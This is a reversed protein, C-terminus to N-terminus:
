SPVLDKEFVFIAERAGHEASLEDLLDRDYREVQFVLSRGHEDERVEVPALSSAAPQEQDAGVRLLVHTARYGNKRYFSETPLDPASGLGIKVMGDAVLIEELDRLLRSGIGKRWHDFMVGITQLVVSGPEKERGLCMGVLEGNVYAGRLWGPQESRWKGFNAAGIGVYEEDLEQARGFDREAVERVEAAGPDTPNCM